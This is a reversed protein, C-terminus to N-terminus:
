KGSPTRLGSWADRVQHYHASPDYISVPLSLVQPSLRGVAALLNYSSVVRDRQAQVLTTRTNVLVQQANLVDFTTREGVRAEKRMGNLTAEAESVAIKAKELEGKAATLQAWAQTVSARVQRRVLDLNLRQQAAGEKSQRILAYEAGGQYLPISLQGTIGATFLSQEGPLPQYQQQFAAQINMTPYLAGENIKVQLYAVDVGYM